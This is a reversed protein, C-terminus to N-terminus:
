QMNACNSHAPFFYASQRPQDIHRPAAVRSLRTEEEIAQPIALSFASLLQLHERLPPVPFASPCFNRLQAVLSPFEGSFSERSPRSRSLQHSRRVPSAISPSPLLKNQASDTGSEFQLM